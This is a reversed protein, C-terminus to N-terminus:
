QCTDVFSARLGFKIWDKYKAEKADNLPINFPYCDNSCIYAILRSVQPQKFSKLSLKVYALQERVKFVTKIAPEPEPAGWDNAGRRERAVMGEYLFPQLTIKNDLPDQLLKRIYYYKTHVTPQLAQLWYYMMPSTGAHWDIITCAFAVATMYKCTANFQTEDPVRDEAVRAHKKWVDYTQPLFAAYKSDYTTLADIDVMVLQESTNRQMINAWKCDTFYFKSEELTWFVGAMAETVSNDDPKGKPRTLDLATLKEMVLCPLQETSKDLKLFNQLQWQKTILPYNRSVNDNEFFPLLPRIKKNKCAEQLIYNYYDVQMPDCSKLRKVVLEPNDRVTYVDGYTGGGVFQDLEIKSAAM